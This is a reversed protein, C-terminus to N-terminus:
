GQEELRCLDVEENQEYAGDRSDATEKLCSQTLTGGTQKKSERDAARTGCQLGVCAKRDSNLEVGLAAEPVAYRAELGERAFLKCVLHGGVKVARLQGLGALLGVLGGNIGIPAQAIDNDVRKPGM